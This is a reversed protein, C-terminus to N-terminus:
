AMAVAAGRRARADAFEQRMDALRTKAEDYSRALFTSKTIRDTFTFQKLDEWWGNFIVGLKDAISKGQKRLDDPLLSEEIFGFDTGTEYM